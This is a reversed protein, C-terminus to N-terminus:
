SVNRFVEADFLNSGHILINLENVLAIRLSEIPPEGLFPGSDFESKLRDKFDFFAPSLRERIYSAPAYGDNFLTLALTIPHEIDEVQFPAAINQVLFYPFEKQTRRSSKPNTTERYGRQEVLGMKVLQQQVKLINGKEGGLKNALEWNAHGNGDALELIAGVQNPTFEKMLNEDSKM